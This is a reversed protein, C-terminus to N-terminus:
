RYNRNRYRNEISRIGAEMRRRAVPNASHIKIIPPILGREMVAREMWTIVDYGTGRKDNGLDHDLSM